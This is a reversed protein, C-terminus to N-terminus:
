DRMTESNLSLFSIYYMSVCTKDRKRINVEIDKNIHFITYIIYMYIDIKMIYKKFRM